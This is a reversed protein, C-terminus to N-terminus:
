KVLRTLIDQACKSIKEDDDHETCLAFVEWEELTIALYKGIKYNNASALIEDGNLESTIKLYKGRKVTQRVKVEWLHYRSDRILVEGVRDKGGHLLKEYIKKGEKGAKYATKSAKYLQVIQFANM